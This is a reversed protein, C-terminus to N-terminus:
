RMSTSPTVVRGGRPLDLVDLSAGDLWATIETEVFLCRRAGPPRRHPIAGTRTLEHVSRRSCRLRRAIDDTTLYPSRVVDAAPTDAAAHPASLTRTAAAPVGSTRPRSPKTDQTRDAVPIGLNLQESGKM